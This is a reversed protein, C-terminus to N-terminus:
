YGGPEMPAVCHSNPNRVDTFTMLLIATCMLLQSIHAARPFVAFGWTYYLYALSTKSNLHSMSNLPIYVLPKSIPQSSTPLTDSDPVNHNAHPSEEPLPHQPLRSLVTLKKFSYWANLESGCPCLLKGDLQRSVKVKVGNHPLKHEASHFEKWHSDANSGIFMYQCSPEDCLSKPMIIRTRSHSYPM